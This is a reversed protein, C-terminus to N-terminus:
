AKPRPGLASVKAAAAARLLVKLSEPLDPRTAIEDLLPGLTDWGGANTIKVRQEDAWKVHAQQVAELQRQREDMEPAALQKAAPMTPPAIAAITGRGAEEENARWAVYKNDDFYGRFVDASVGLKQLCGTLADTLSKKPAEEDTFPGNKNTGIMTTVGFGDIEGLEGTAPDVYWFRVRLQHIVTRDNGIIAGKENYVNRSHGEVLREDVIDYGWGIGCPGLLATVVQYQYTPNIATGSFGGGRTFKRTATPDTLEVRQWIRLPNM